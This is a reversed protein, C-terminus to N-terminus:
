ERGPPPPSSGEDDVFTTERDGTSYAVVMRATDRGVNRAQHPSSRPIHLATGTKLHVVRGDVEHDLVGEILFLVEDCNPHLHRPNRGGAAIEVYGFTLDAGPILAASVLWAISGWEFTNAPVAGVRHTRGGM